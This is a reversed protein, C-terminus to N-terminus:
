DDQGRLQLFILKPDYIRNWADDLDENTAASEAALVLALSPPPLARSLPATQFDNRSSYRITM